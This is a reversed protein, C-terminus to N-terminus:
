SKIPKTPNQGRTEERRTPPRHTPLPRKWLNLGMDLQTHPRNHNPLPTETRMDSQKSSKYGPYTSLVVLCKSSSFPFFFSVDTWFSAFGRVLSRYRWGSVGDLCSPYVSGWGQSTPFFHELAEIILSTDCYIERGIALVPIKRYHLGFVSTLLPRPLMSPVPVYAKLHTLPHITSNSKVSYRSMGFLFYFYRFLINSVTSKFFLFFFTLSTGLVLSM